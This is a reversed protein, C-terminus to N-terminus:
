RGGGPAPRGAAEAGKQVYQEIVSESFARWILMQKRFDDVFLRNSKVWLYRPGSVYRIDFRFGWRDREPNKRGDLVVRQTINREFPALWAPFSLSVHEDSVKELVPADLCAFVGMGEGSFHEVFERLFEMVGLTEHIDSAIFPFDILWRGDQPATEIRWTRELSPNAIRSAIYMPWASSSVTALMALGVSYIVFIGLYNPYFVPPFLGAVRFIYLMIIGIFYGLVSAIGAYVISEVFFMGAVHRPSLGVSSFINIERRREHVTGLMVALVMFFAVVLPMIMFSSGKISVMHCASLLSVKGGISKFVDVNPIMLAVTDAIPSIRSRDFPKIVVGWIATTLLRTKENFRRPLYIIEEAPFHAPNQLDGQSPDAFYIPTVQRGDPDLCNKDVYRGDFVAVVELPINEFRVTDGVNARLQSAIRKSIIVSYVDGGNFWRGQTLARDIGTIRPEREDVIQISPVEARFDGKELYIKRKSAATDAYAYNYYERPVVLAESSYLRRLLEYNETFIGKRRDYTNSVLVGESETEIYSLPENFTYQFGTSTTLLVLALILLTITALTLGTRLRRRRMNSIALSLAAVLVGLREVEASHSQFYEEGREKIMRIGRTVILGLAPITLIVILFSIITIWINDALRFGPHFIWLLGVFVVFIATSVALTASPTKQPLILRETLFSFPILLTFYFVTTSVVDWLLKLTAKYARASSEVGLEAASVARPYDRAGLAEEAIERYRTSIRHEKEAEYSRVGYRNYSDLRFRNLHELQRLFEFPTFFVPRNEGPSVTYGPPRDTPASSNNLVVTKSASEALIEAARDPQLFVMAINKWQAFSYQEADTRAGAIMVRKVRLYPMQAWENANGDGGSPLFKIVWENPVNDQYNFKHLDNLGFLTLSGCPFVTIPVQMFATFISRDTIRYEVDGRLGYDTAYIIRGADDLTYATFTYRIAGSTAAIGPIHYSGDPEAKVLYRCMFSQMGQHFYRQPALPWPLFAFNKGPMFEYHYPYAYVYTQGLPKGAEDAPLTDAYWATKVSFVRVRGDVAAYGRSRARNWLRAKRVPINDEGAALTGLRALAYFLMEVQPALNEFHAASEEFSALPCNHHYRWVRDTQFVFALGDALEWPENPTYFRPARTLPRKDAVDSLYWESEHPLPALGGSLSYDDGFFTRIEDAIGPVGGPEGFFVRKLDQFRVIGYDGILGNYDVALGRSDTSLDVACTLRDEVGIRELTKGVYRRSLAHGQWNGSFAIFRLNVKPPNAKFYRAAEVLAAVGWIEDGGPALAPVISRTDFHSTINITAESGGTGPLYAEVWPAQVNDLSMECRLTVEVGDAAAARLKGGAAKSVWVRPFYVPVMDIYKGDTQRWTTRDPEIFAAAKAGFQAATLWNAGSNYEMLVISGDLDRGALDDLEGEGIYVLRGTLGEEGTACPQVNNPVMPWAELVTGDALTVSAKGSVPVCVPATEIRVDELGIEEFRDRIYEAAASCAPQGTQRSGFSAITRAHKFVAGLAREDVYEKVARALAATDDGPAEAGAQVASACAAAVALAALVAAPPKV